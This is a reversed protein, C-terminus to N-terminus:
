QRAAAHVKDAQSGLKVLYHPGVKKISGPGPWIPMAQFEPTLAHRLGDPLPKVRDFGLMALYATIRKIDGKGWGFFSGKTVSTQAAPFLSHHHRDRYGYFDVLIVADSQEAAELELLRRGIDSAIMRDYEQTMSAAATYQSTLNLIQLQYLGFVICAAVALWAESATLLLMAMLWTVYPIALMSRLPLGEPGALVHLLFPSGLMSLLIVAHLVLKRRSALLVCASALITALAAIPMPAGYVSASGSYIDWAHRTIAAALWLPAKWNEPHVFNDDLYAPAAGLLLQTSKSLVVYLIGAAVLCLGLQAIEKVLQLALPKNSARSRLCKTLTIGAGMSLFVLLLSQYAGAALALLVAIGLARRIGIRKFLDASRADHALCAAAVVALFGLGTSPVNASFESILWWTPFTVFLPFAAYTKWGVAYGHARVLLMYAVALCLVLFLYPAFPTAPQPFLLREVLYITYRGQSVWVDADSRVAALEDDISPSFTSLFYINAIAGLVFLAFFERRDFAQGRLWGIFDHSRHRVPLADIDHSHEAM